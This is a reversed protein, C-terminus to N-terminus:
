PWFGPLNRIFSEGNEQRLHIIQPKGFKAEFAMGFTGADLDEELYATKGDKYSYGTIKDEIGLERILKLPVELWGHGNDSHFNFQQKSMIQIRDVKPRTTLQFVM